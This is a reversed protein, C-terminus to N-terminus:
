LDLVYGVRHVTRIMSPQGEEDIAKRLLALHVRVTEPSMESEDSWIRNVLAEQNFIENPHRMFFELLGFQKPLLNIERGHKFVKRSQVDLELYRAKLRPALLQVPRRLLARVRSGLEEPHFPKTLYDDAGSDLGCTKDQWDSKGTLMLVPASGGHNRFDKCLDLGSIKPLEWDLVILDYQYNELRFQAEEGDAVCDVVHGDLSLWDSVVNAVEPSDEVVLIKAM